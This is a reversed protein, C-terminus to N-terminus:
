LILPTLVDNKVINSSNTSNITIYLILIKLFDFTIAIIKGNIYKEMM